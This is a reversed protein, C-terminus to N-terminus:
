PKIQPIVNFIALYKKAYKALAGTSSLYDIAKDVCTVLPDGKHFLLGFHEGTSPFHGLVEAGPIEDAAIYQATPTDTVFAAIQHTDLASKVDNLSQYVRTQTTPRIYQSIFALSTTGIQDGFQYTRLAAPSHNTAIPSNKLVVLAQTDAYYSVSFTVAQARAPTVSIEDIDFDFAKPGPAYSDNFPEYAWKVQSKSFGLASAVGYAVAAEYGEGNEPHNNVFWPTYVPNDTAITLVGKHYLEGQIASNSCSAGLPGTSAQTGTGATTTTTSSATGSGCAALGAAFVGVMMALLLKRM